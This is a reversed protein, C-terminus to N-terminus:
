KPITIVRGNLDFKKNITKLFSEADNDTVFKGVYVIHFVSGAVQKEKIESFIGSKEFKDQLSKANEINSFAGAQITFKYDLGPKEVKTQNSNIRTVKDDEKEIDPNIPLKNQKAVKIYPSKPYNIILQNLKKDASEYLGLAYYYSYIRYLAADAYKSNPYTDVIKQYIVVATQGNETLVGDLFMISPSEPYEIKLNTLESKVEDVRGREIQKLYQVIDVEQSYLFLPTALIILILFAPIKFNYFIM